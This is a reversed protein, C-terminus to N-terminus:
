GGVALALRGLLDAAQDRLPSSPYGTAHAARLLDALRGYERTRLARAVGLDLRFSAIAEDERDDLRALAAQVHPQDIVLLSEIESPIPRDGARRNLSTSPARGPRLSAACLLGMVFATHYATGLAYRKRRDGSLSRLRDADTTGGPLLGAEDEADTLVRFAFSATACWREGLFPWAMLVEAALDYDGRDICVALLSRADALLASRPRPMRRKRAGFDTTYMLAHTFAYYDERLGGVLDISTALTSRGIIQSWEAAAVPIGWLERIWLKELVGYPPLEHGKSGRSRLCEALVAEANPDPFGLRGLLVHAIAMGEALSPHLVARLLVTETRAEVAVAGALETVRAALAPDTAGGFAAHLLMTTEAVAKDATVTLSPDDPEEFGSAAFADVTRAAVALARSLRETLDSQPWDAFPM